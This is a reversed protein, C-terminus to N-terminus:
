LDKITLLHGFYTKELFHFNSHCFYDSIKTHWTLVTCCNTIHGWPFFHAVPVRARELILGPHYGLSGHPGAFVQPSTSEQPGPCSQGMM